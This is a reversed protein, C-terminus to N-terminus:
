GFFVGNFSIKLPLSLFITLFLVVGSSFCLQPREIFTLLKKNRVSLKELKSTTIILWVDSLLNMRQIGGIFSLCIMNGSIAHLIM